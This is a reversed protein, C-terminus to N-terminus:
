VAEHHQRLWEEETAMSAVIKRMQGVSITHFAPSDPLIERFLSQLGADTNLEALSYTRSKRMM